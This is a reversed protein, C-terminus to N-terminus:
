HFIFSFGDLYKLYDRLPLSFLHGGSTIIENVKIQKAKKDELTSAFLDKILMKYSLDYLM